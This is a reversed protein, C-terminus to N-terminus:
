HDIGGIPSLARLHPARMGSRSQRTHVPSQLRLGRRGGVYGYDDFFGDDVKILSGDDLRASTRVGKMEKGPSFDIKYPTLWM